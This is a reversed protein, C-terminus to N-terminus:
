YDKISPVTPLENLEPYKEIRLKELSKRQYCSATADSKISYYENSKSVDSHTLTEHLCLDCTLTECKVKAANLANLRSAQTYLPLDKPWSNLTFSEKILPIVSDLEFDKLELASYGRVSSKYAVKFKEVANDYYSSVLVSNVIACKAHIKAKLCADLAKIMSDGRVGDGELNSFGLGGTWECTVFYLVSNPDTKSLNKKEEVDGAWIFIAKLFFYLIFIRRM